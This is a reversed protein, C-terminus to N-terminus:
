HLAVCAGMSHTIIHVAQGVAEVAGRFYNTYEEAFLECGWRRWDYNLALLNKDAIKATLAAMVKIPILEGPNLCNVGQVGEYPKVEVGEMSATGKITRGDQLSADVLRLSMSQMM